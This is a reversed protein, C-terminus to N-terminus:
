CFDPVERLDHITGRLVNDRGVQRALANLTRIRRVFWDPVQKHSDVNDTQHETQHERQDANEEAM